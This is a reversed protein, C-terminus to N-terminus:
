DVAAVWTQFVPVLSARSCPSRTLWCCRGVKVYRFVDVNWVMGSARRMVEFQVVRKAGWCQMLLCEASQRDTLRVRRPFLRTQQEAATESARRQRRRAWVRALRQERAEKSEQDRATHYPTTMDNGSIPLSTRETERVARESDMIFGLQFLGSLRINAHKMHKFRCTGILNHLAYHRYM